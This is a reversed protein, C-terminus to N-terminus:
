PWGVIRVGLGSRHVPEGVAQVQGAGPDGVVARDVADRECGHEAPAARARAFVDVVVEVGLQHGHSSAGPLEVELHDVGGVVPPFLLGPFGGGSKWRVISRESRM